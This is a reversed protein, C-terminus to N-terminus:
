VTFEFRRRMIYLSVRSTVSWDIFDNEYQFLTKNGLKGSASTQLELSCHGVAFVFCNEVDICSWCDSLLLFASMIVASHNDPRMCQFLRGPEGSLQLPLCRSLILRSFSLHYLASSFLDWSLWYFFVSSPSSPLSFLYCTLAFSLLQLPPHNIKIFLM